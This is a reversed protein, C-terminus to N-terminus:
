ARVSVTVLDCIMIMKFVKFDDNEMDGRDEGM